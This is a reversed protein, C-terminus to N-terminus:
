GGFTAMKCHRKSFGHLDQPFISTSSVNLKVQSTDQNTQYNKIIKIYKSLNKNPINKKRFPTIIQYNKYNKTTIPPKSSFFINSHM